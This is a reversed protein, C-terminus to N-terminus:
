DEEKESDNFLADEKGRFSSEEVGTVYINKLEDLTVKYNGNSDPNIGVEELMLKFKETTM